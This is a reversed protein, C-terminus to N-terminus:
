LNNNLHASKLMIQLVDTSRARTDGTDVASMSAVGGSLIERSLSKYAEEDGGRFKFLEKITNDLGQSYLVQLEPFSISSGKSAGTVQGTLEDIRSNDDPIRMKKELHQQLRKLPLDIVLYKEPTLHVEGTAPDTLWLQEFFEHKLEQAIKLNKEVSLRVKGLNPVIYPLVENGDRLAEMYGDFQKDNLANLMDELQTVAINKGAFKSLLQVVYATAEIRAKKM